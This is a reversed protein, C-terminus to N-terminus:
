AAVLVFTAPVFTELVFTGLVNAGAVNTGTAAYHFIEALVLGMKILSPCMNKSVRFKKIWYKKLGFNKQVWFKKQVCFIKQVLIEQVLLKKSGM